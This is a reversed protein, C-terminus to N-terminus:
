YITTNHNEPEFYCIFSLFLHLVGGILHVALQEHLFILQIQGDLLFQPAFQLQGQPLRIM